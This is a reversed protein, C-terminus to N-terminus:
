LYSHDIDIAVIQCEHPFRHLAKSLPVGTGVGVDLIRKQSGTLRESLKEYTLGTIPYSIFTDYLTTSAFDIIDKVTTFM